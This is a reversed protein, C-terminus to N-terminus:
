WGWEVSISVSPMSLAFGDGLAPPYHSPLSASPLPVQQRGQSTRPWTPRGSDASEPLCPVHCLEAVSDPEHCPSKTGSSRKKWEMAKMNFLTFDHRCSSGGLPFPHPFWMWPLPLYFGKVPQRSCKPSVPSSRKDMPEVVVPLGSEGRSRADTLCDLILCWLTVGGGQMEPGVLPHHDWLCALVWSM